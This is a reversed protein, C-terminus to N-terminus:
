EKFARNRQYDVFDASLISVSIRDSSNTDKKSFDYCATHIVSDDNYIFNTVTKFSNGNPLGRYKSRGMNDETINSTQTRIEKIVSKQLEYCKNINKIGKNLNFNIRM